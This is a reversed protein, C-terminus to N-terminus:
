IIPESPNATHPDLPRLRHSSTSRTAQDKGNHGIAATHALIRQLTRTTIGRVTRATHRQADPQAKLTEAPDPTNAESHPRILTIECEVHRCNARIM